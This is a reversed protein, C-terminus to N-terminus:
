GTSLLRRAGAQTATLAKSAIGIQAVVGRRVALVGRTRGNPVLYWGSRGIRVAHLRRVLRATLRTGPRVGRLAYHRNATLALSAKGRTFGVRLNGGRLCFV